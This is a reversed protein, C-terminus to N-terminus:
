VAFPHTGRAYRFIQTLKDAVCRAQKSPLAFLWAFKVGHDQYTMIWKMQQNSIPDEDPHSDMQILDMQARMNFGRTIIPTIGERKSIRPNGEICLPCLSCYKEIVTRPINCFSTRLKNEMKTVRGLLLEKHCENLIGWLEEKTAIRTVLELDISNGRKFNHENRKLYLQKSSGFQVLGYRQRYKYKLKHTSSDDSLVAIIENKKQQDIVISNKQDKSYDHYWEMFLRKHESVQEINILSSLQAAVHNEQAAVHNEEAEEM